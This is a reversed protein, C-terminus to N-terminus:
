FIFFYKIYYMKKKETWGRYQINDHHYNHKERADIKLDEVEIEWKIIDITFYEWVPGGARFM